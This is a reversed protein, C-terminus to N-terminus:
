GAPLRTRESRGRVAAVLALVGAGVIPLGVSLLGLLGLGLLLVASAALAVRRKPAARVIGYVSLLGAAALGVVFWWAPEGGQRGILVLYLVMMVAAIAAAAAAAPDWGNWWRLTM